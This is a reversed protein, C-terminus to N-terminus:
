TDQLNDGLIRSAFSIGNSLVFFAIKLSSLVPNESRDRDEGALEFAILKILILGM